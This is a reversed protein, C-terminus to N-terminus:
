ESPGSFVPPTALRARPAADGSGLNCTHHEPALNDDRDSGGDAVAVIHGLTLGMPHRGSLTLDIPKGCRRCIAGDRAVVRRRAARMRQGGRHLISQYHKM